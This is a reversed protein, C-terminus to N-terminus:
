FQQFANEPWNDWPSCGHGRPATGPASAGHTLTEFVIMHHDVPVAQTRVEQEIWEITNPLRSGLRNHYENYGIEFTPYESLSVKGGCVYSPVPNGLLYRTHFELAAEIRPRESEYLDVGQIFATEAANITAAIGYETHGFDRCTEQAIGNVRNDFVTQGYWSPNGRPAPEPQSGDYPAYYFYAPVRQHWMAVAHQFLAADNNYVAIGMIGEIMSLEWNGNSSSGNVIKPLIVNNMMTGFAAADTASWGANSYRILEAARAWKEAGWAAQLPANSNIYDKLSAGYANLIKIANQAYTSNGTIWFLLAQTYAASGDDDEASCGIDPNSYSGCNIVGDPPPGEPSYTLSGYKNNQAKIFASYIPDIKEQVQRRIFQLQQASVLVGPHQFTMQASSAQVGAGTFLLCSVAIFVSRYRKYLQSLLCTM